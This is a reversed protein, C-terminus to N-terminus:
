HRLEHAAEELGERFAAVAEGAVERNLRSLHEVEIQVERQATDVVDRYTTMLDNVNRCGMLRRTAQLEQEICRGMFGLWAKNMRFAQDILRGNIETMMAFVPRQMEMWSELTAKARTELAEYDLESQTPKNTMVMVGPQHQRSAPWRSICFFTDPVLPRSSVHSLLTHVLGASQRTHRILDDWSMQTNSRHAVSIGDQWRSGAYGTPVDLLGNM